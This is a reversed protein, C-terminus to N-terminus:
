FTWSINLAKASWLDDFGDGNFLSHDDFTTAYDLEIAIRLHKMVQVGIRPTLLGIFENTTKGTAVLIGDGIGLGLGIYPCVKGKPCIRFDSLLKLGCQHINFSEVPPDCSEGTRYKYDIKACIDFHNSLEYRYESFVNIGFDQGIGGVYGLIGFASVGAGAEFRHPSGTTQSYLQACTIIVAFIALLRKKM